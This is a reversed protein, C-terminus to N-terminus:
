AIIYKGHWLLCAPGLKICGQWRDETSCLSDFIAVIGLRFAEDRITVHATGSQPCM